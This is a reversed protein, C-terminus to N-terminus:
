YLTPKFICIWQHVTVDYLRDWSSFSRRDYTELNWRRTPPSNGTKVMLFCFLLIGIKGIVLGTTVGLSVPTILASFFDSSILIGSNAWIIALVVGILLVIGSTYELHVFRSVPAIIKEIPTKPLNKIM